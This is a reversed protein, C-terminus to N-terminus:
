TQQYYAHVQSFDRAALDANRIIFYVTGERDIQALDAMAVQLLLRWTNGAASMEVDTFPVDSKAKREIMAFRPDDQEPIPLGLLRNRRAESVRYPSGLFPGDDISTLLSYCADGGPQSRFRVLEIDVAGEASHTDPLQWIPTLMMHRRPYVFPKKLTADFAPPNAHLAEIAKQADAIAKEDVGLGRMFKASDPFSKAMADNTGKADDYQALRWAQELEDFVPPVPALVLRERPTDDYIVRCAHMSGSFIGIIDDWFFLLRGNTPLGNNHKPHRAAEEMDIQAIFEYPVDRTLYDAFNVRQGFDKTLSGVLEHISTATRIPWAVHDPLMPTGGFHSGFPSPNAGRHPEIWIQPRLHKVLMDVDARKIPEDAKDICYQKIVARADAENKFMPFTRKASTSKRTPKREANAAGPWALGGVFAAGSQLFERRYLGSMDPLEWGNPGHPVYVLAAYAAKGNKYGFFWERYPEPLV